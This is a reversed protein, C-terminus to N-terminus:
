LGGNRCEDLTSAIVTTFIIDCANECLITGILSLANSANLGEEHPAKKQSHKVLTSIKQELSSTM